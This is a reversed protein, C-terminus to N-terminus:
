VAVGLKGALHDDCRWAYRLAHARTGQRLSRIPQPPAVRAVAEILEAVQADALAYYRHRGRSAVTLSFTRPTLRTVPEVPFGRSRMPTQKSPEPRGSPCAAAGDRSRSAPNDSARGWARTVVSM